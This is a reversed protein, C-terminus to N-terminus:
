RRRMLKAVGQHSVQSPRQGPTTCSGFFNTAFTGFEDLTEVIDPVGPSDQSWFQNGTSSLGSPSGFLVNVGGAEAAGSIKEGPVGIALDAFGDNNFDGVYLSAGFIDGTERSGVIGPSNQSWLQDDPSSAQLGGSSGFLIQVVGTDTAAGDEGPVGIALDAYGDRNFDGCAVSYGFVDDTEANGQVDSTNQNLGTRTMDFGSSSGYFVNVQGAYSASGVSEYPVGVALDDRGDGNFDCAALDTGMDDFQEPTGQSLIVDDPGGSGTAQLGAHSGFLVSVSGSDSVGSADAGPVGIALDDFGDGNFDACTLAAGFDDYAAATGAVNPSNRSWLQNQDSILGSPSGYIVSVEGYYQESVTYQGPVGMALDDFGDGNFDCSTLAAGLFELFGSSGVIGPKDKTWVQDDPSTAQLGGSQGYFVQVAGSCAGPISANYKNPVGVALDDFSDGNFDGAAQSSGFFDDADANLRVNGVNANWFKGPALGTASGHFVQVAGANSQSGVGERPVGVALDDFGDGNFDGAKAGIPMEALLWACVAARIQLTLECRPYGALAQVRHNKM